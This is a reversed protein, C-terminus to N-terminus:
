FLRRCGPHLIAGSYGEKNQFVRDVIKAIFIRSGIDKVLAVTARYGQCLLQKKTNEAL